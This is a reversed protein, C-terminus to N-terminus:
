VTSRPANWSTPTSHVATDVSLRGYLETLRPEDDPRIARLRVYVGNRLRVTREREKLYDQVM